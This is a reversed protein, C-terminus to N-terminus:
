RRVDGPEEEDEVEPRDEGTYLGEEPMDGPAAMPSDLDPDPTESCAVLAALLLLPALSKM